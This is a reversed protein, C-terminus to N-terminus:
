AARLVEFEGSPYILVQPRWDDDAVARMATDPVFLHDPNLYFVHLPWARLALALLAIWALTGIRISTAPANDCRHPFPRAASPTLQRQGCEVRQPLCSRGQRAGRMRCHRRPERPRPALRGERGREADRDRERRRTPEDRGRVLRDRRRDIAQLEEAGVVRQREPEHRRRPAPEVGMGRREELRRDEM